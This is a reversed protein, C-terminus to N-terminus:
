RFQCVYVKNDNMCGVTLTKRSLNFLTCTPNSLNSILVRNITWMFPILQHIKGTGNDCIYVHKDLDSSIHVLNQLTTRTFYWMLQGNSDFVKLERPECIMINDSHQSRVFRPNFLKIPRNHSDSFTNLNKLFVLEMNTLRLYWNGSTDSCLFALNNGLHCVSVVHAKIKRTYQKEFRGNKIEYVFLAKPVLVLIRKDQDLSIVDLPEKELVPFSLQKYSADILKLTKNNRDIFVMTGDYRLLCGNHSCLKSTVDEVSLDYTAIEFVDSYTLSATLNSKSVARSLGTIPTKSPDGGVANHNDTRKEDLLHKNNNCVHNGGNPQISETM